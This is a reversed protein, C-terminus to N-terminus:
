ARPSTSLHEVARKAGARVDDPERPDVTIATLAEIAQTDGRAAISGILGLRARGGLGGLALRYAEAVIPGDIADLTLRAEDATHESKLLKTLEAVCATSGILGLMRCIFQRGAATLDPRGLALLLRREHESRQSPEANLVMQQVVSSFTRDGGFELRAIESWPDPTATFWEEPRPSDGREVAQVDEATTSTTPDSSM